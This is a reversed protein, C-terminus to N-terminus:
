RLVVATMVAVVFPGAFDGAIPFRQRKSHEISM